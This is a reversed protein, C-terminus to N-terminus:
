YNLFPTCLNFALKIFGETRTVALYNINLYTEAKLIM